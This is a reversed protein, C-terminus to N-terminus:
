LTVKTERNIIALMDVADTVIKVALVSNRERNGTLIKTVYDATCNHKRAITSLKLDRLENTTFVKTQM